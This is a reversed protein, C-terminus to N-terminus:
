YCHDKLFKKDEKSSLNKFKYKPIFKVKKGFEKLIYHYGNLFQYSKISTPNLWFEVNLVDEKKEDIDM